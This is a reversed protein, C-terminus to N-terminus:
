KVCSPLQNLDTVVEKIASRMFTEAAEAVFMILFSASIFRTSWVGYWPTVSVDDPSFIARSIM